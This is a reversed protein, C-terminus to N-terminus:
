PAENALTEPSVFSDGAAAMEDVIRELIAPDFIPHFFFGAVGDRVVRMSRATEIMQEPTLPPQQNYGVPIYNGLNEPVVRWGYVDKVVFPFTMGLTHSVDEEKGELTGSFFLERQFAVGILRAIARSDKASGAYHPYEFVEPRPLGADSIERLARAIRDSAWAESDEAVPGDLVVRNDTDIHARYFEFDDGTVGSYPNPTTGHQHTYGHLALSGGHDLMYRVADRVDPVDQLRIRQSGNEYVPILAISFPVKRKSLRDALERLAAPDSRPNVDEIRVVARHREPTKPALVDFFLDCLILFRDGPTVFVLPNEGIYTFGRTRLAWPVSTGDDHEASALVKAISTDLTSYSLIGDTLDAHRALRANKYTVAHVPAKDFSGPSFGFRAAFDPARRALKWVNSGIWVVQTKEALVDDMFADPLPQDFTSGVYIAVDYSRMAGQRYASVPMANWGGFHSVLVGLGTAYLGGLWAYAGGDDYLVLSRALPLARAEGCSAAPSCAPRGSSCALSLLVLVFMFAPNRAGRM